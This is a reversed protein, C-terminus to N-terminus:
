GPPQWTEAQCGAGASAHRQAHGSGYLDDFVQQSRAQAFVPGQFSKEASSSSCSISPRLWRRMSRKCFGSVQRGSFGQGVEVLFVQGQAQAAQQGLQAGALEDVPGLIQQDETQRATPFRVKHRGDAV